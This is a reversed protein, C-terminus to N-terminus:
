GEGKGKRWSMEESFSILWMFHYGNPDNVGWHAVFLLSGGKGEFDRGKEIKTIM